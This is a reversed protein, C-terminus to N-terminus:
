DKDQFSDFIDQFQVSLDQFAQLIQPDFHGPMTRGDGKTIIDFTKEHTFGAKYPRKSRLADYQDAISLIRGVLPIDEGKLGRPYGSGDWKEHHVLAIIEAERLYKSASDKLINAGILTHNKIINFEEPTLKDPKLLIQDPIGIKGIDHMPAAYFIKETFEDSLNLEESLLRCYHSIRRLHSATDEDKFEAALTLRYITEIHSQRSENYAYEIATKADKLERTRDAVECELVTNYENLCDEYEKIKLLNKIRLILEARDIPKTLFDNAGMELGKILSGRDALATIIIVPTSNLLPDKKIKACVKYGDMVPMMIDLLVLDPRGSKIKDLAEKGNVATILHYGETELISSILRLNVEEDDAILITKHIKKIMM